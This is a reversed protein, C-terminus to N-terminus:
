ASDPCPPKPPPPDNNNNIGSSCPERASNIEDLKYQRLAAVMEQSRESADRTLEEFKTFEQKCQQYWRNVNKYVTLDFKIAGELAAVSIALSFDAVTLDAGALWKNGDLFRDMTAVADQVKRFDEPKGEGIGAIIPYYYTSLARHFTGLQFFLLRNVKSREVVDDPYYKKGETGYKEALYILIANSEWVVVDGDVLTPICHQPNIALFEPKLHEKKLVNVEIYNLEVGLAESLLIVSRCFPAVIHCYLDVPM